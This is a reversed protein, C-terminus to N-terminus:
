DARTGVLRGCFAERAVAFRPPVQGYADIGCAKVNIRALATHQFLRQRRCTERSLIQYTTLTVPGTEKLEGTYEAIDGPRLVTKDLLTGAAMAQGRDPKDDARTYDGRGTGNRGYWRHDQGRRM